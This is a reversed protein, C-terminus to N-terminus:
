SANRLLSERQKGGGDPPSTLIGEVADHVSLHPQEGAVDDYIGAKKLADMVPGKVGALLLRVGTEKLSRAMEGVAGNASSDLRNISSADLIVTHVPETQEALADRVLDKLFTVNGFYFSADIRLILMGPFQQAEPHREINRYAATGPLRGLVAAHPRTTQVIFWM